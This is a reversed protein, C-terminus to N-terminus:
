EFFAYDNKGRQKVSYMADDAQRLLTAVDHTNASHTSVGISAGIRLTQGQVSFPATLVRLLKQAVQKLQETSLGPFALVFEDGGLRAVLDVSRVNSRLRQAVAQLLEDGVAHGFSDNIAKFGDLDIFLVTTSVGQELQHALRAELAPRNLLATLADHQAYHMLQQHQAQLRLRLDRLHGVTGGIITAVVAPPGGDRFITLLFGRPEPALLYLPYATLAFGLLGAWFGAWFGWVAGTVIVPLFMLAGAAPGAVSSLFWFCASCGLWALATLTVRFARSGVEPTPNHRSSPRAAFHM